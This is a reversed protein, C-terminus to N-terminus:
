KPPHSRLKIRWEEYSLDYGSYQCSTPPSFIPILSSSTMRSCEKISLYGFLVGRNSLFLCVLLTNGIEEEITVKRITNALYGRRKETSGLLDWRWRGRVRRGRRKRKSRLLFLMLQNLLGVGTSKSSM